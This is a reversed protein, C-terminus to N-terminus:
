NSSRLSLRMLHRIVVSAAGIALILTVRSRWVHSATEIAGVVFAAIVTVVAALTADILAPRPGWPRHLVLCTFGGAAIGLVSAFLVNIIFL